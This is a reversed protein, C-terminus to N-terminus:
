RKQDLITVLQGAVLTSQTMAADKLTKVEDVSFDTKTDSNELKMYLDFRKLKTAANDATDTLLAFRLATRADLAHKDDQNLKMAQGAVISKLQGSFDYKM